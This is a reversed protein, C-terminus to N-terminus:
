GATIGSARPQILFGTDSAALLTGSADAVGGPASAVITLQGGTAFKPKGQIKLTVVDTTPDYSVALAVPQLVTVTKKKVRKRSAQELQYNTELGATTPNMAASYQLAFGVIVPKGVPKGKKNTKQMTVVREAVITPPQTSTPSPSPSVTPSPTPSPTTAPSVSLPSTAAPSLGTATAQIAQGGAAAVLSLGTFTVVGGHAAVTTAFGPDDPVSVTVNGTYSSDVNGFPDEAAVTMSFSQGAVLSDPPPVTVVLHTASAPAVNISGSAVPTLVENGFDFATTGATDVALGKFTAVGGSVKATVTGGLTTGATVVTTSDATELNGYADVERIVPQVALAQGATATSSPETVIVFQAPAAPSISFTHSPGAPALTGDTAKLTYQGVADIKLNAFTAVGGSAIATATTAGGDFTGGTITLTVTSSDATELNHYADEVRVTVAPGIATGATADTPQQGFVVQSAKLPLIQIGSVTNTFGGVPDTVTISQSGATTLTVTFSAPETGDGTFTYPAPLVAHGDSSTFDVTGQYQSTMNGYPDVAAVTVTIGTGAQQSTPTVKVQLHSVAAAQVVIGAQQASLGAAVDKASITQSGATELIVSFTHAGADGTTYPYALPLVALGDSGGIDVTGTYGTAVNGYADYATVTVDHADGATVTSPFGTLQLTAAAAAQVAIGAEIGGLKNTADTATISQSGATEMDVVFAHVGADSATFKYSAPLSAHGDSSTLTATGTYSHVTNGFPNVATVTVSHADGATDTTPFGSVRFASAAAAQVTIGTQSATIASTADDTATISQSGATKLTVVFPHVGADAASFTYALPLAAQGDSSTLTVTGAYGTAVNGFPDLATVNVSHAVGATATTPFGSVQFASAAAAQVTIGTESGVLKNTADNAAISQKGVTKLAVTFNHQGDDSPAFTYALPLAAQGDSSSLAVTGLYGTAVNGFPDLATVTLSEAAGATVTSPFGTVTLSHAAAAQVTIGTESSSLQDTADTATISQSGATDLTVSFPHVGADNATFKYSAPLVAHGDSSAIAVTGTYGTAVNGFPDM